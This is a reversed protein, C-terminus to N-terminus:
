AYIVYRLSECAVLHGVEDGAASAPRWGTAAAWEEAGGGLRVAGRAMALVARCALTATGPAGAPVAERAAVGGDGPASEDAVRATRRRWLRGQRLLSLVGGGWM